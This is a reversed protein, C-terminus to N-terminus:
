SKVGAVKLVRSELNVVMMAAMRLIAMQARGKTVIVPWLVMVAAVEGKMCAVRPRGSGEKSIFLLITFGGSNSTWFEPVNVM